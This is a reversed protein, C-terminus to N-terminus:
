YQLLIADNGSMPIYLPGNLTVHLEASYLFVDNGSMPIYLPGNLTERFEASYLLIADNGSMQFTCHAM